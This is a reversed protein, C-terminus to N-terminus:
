ISHKRSKACSAASNRATRQGPRGQRARIRAANKGTGQGVKQQEKLAEKESLPKDDREILRGYPRGMLILIEETEV